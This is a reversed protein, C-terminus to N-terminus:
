ATDHFRYNPKELDILVLVMSCHRECSAAFGVDLLLRSESDSMPGYLRELPQPLCHVTLITITITYLSVLPFHECGISEEEPDALADRQSLAREHPLEHRDLHVLAAIRIYNGRILLRHCQHLITQFLPPRSFPLSFVVM